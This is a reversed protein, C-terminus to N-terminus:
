EIPNLEKEYCFFPVQRGPFFVEGRKIYKRSEYFKLVQKNESFADLRVSAYGNTRAYNEAFDMLKSAIGQGQSAPNVALRHVVLIKGSNMHWHVSTYAADQEENICVLGLYQEQLRMCYLHRLQIDNEVIARTPYHDTWQYIGKRDLEQRCNLLIQFLAAAQDPQALQIDM